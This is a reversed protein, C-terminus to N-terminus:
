YKNIKWQNEIKAFSIYTTFNRGKVDRHLMYKATEENQYVKEISKMTRFIRNTKVSGLRKYRSVKKSEEPCCCKLAMDYNGGVIAKKFENWTAEPSSLNIGQRSTAQAASPSFSIGPAIIMCITLFVMAIKKM